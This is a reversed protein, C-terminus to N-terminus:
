PLSQDPRSSVARVWPQGADDPASWERAVFVSTPADLLLSAMFDAVREPKLLHGGRHLERFREIAPFNDEGQQRILAQMPTDVVGPRVSGVAVGADALEDRLVQYLMHLAAKAACYSGWGVYGHHAAGSSVHLVRGGRLQGLLAQTLFLPAEVNVAQADRWAELTVGSLPGIPELVAANHVLCRVQRGNLAHCVAERGSAQAVDACVASIREGGDRCVADLRERRRGVIVVDLGRRALELALARGIGSGGGTVVACDTEM